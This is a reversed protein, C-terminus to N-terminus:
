RNWQWDARFVDLYASSSAGADNLFVYRVIYTNQRVVLNSQGLAIYRDDVGIVARMGLGSSMDVVFLWQQNYPECSSVMCVTGLAVPDDIDFSEFLHTQKGFLSRHM